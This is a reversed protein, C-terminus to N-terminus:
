NPKVTEKAYTVQKKDVYIELFNHKRLFCSMPINDVDVNFAVSKRSLQIARDNNKKLLDSAVGRRRDSPLVAFLDVFLRPNLNSSYAEVEHNIKRRYIHKKLLLLIKRPARLSLLLKKTTSLNYHRRASKWELEDIIIM